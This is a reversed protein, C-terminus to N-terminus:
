LIDNIYEKSYLQTIDLKGRYIRDTRKDIIDAYKIECLSGCDPVIPKLKLGEKPNLEDLFVPYGQLKVVWWKEYINAIEGNTAYLLNDEKFSWRSKEKIIEDMLKAYEADTMKRSIKRDKKICSHGAEREAIAMRDFTDPFDVRIKNWYGAKGKVCGICNNNSYGLLYMKPLDIGNMLLIEACEPKTVKQEILPFRPNTEPYQELFRIARNIQTKGFEFGFIQVADPFDAQIKFRVMKKLEITCRAGGAGNVYGTDEIVEFQDEYKASRETIIDKGYWKELDALFRINDEHATKIGIYYFYCNELGYQQIALKGAIASTTGCSVWILCRM